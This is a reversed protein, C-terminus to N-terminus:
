QVLGCDMTRFLRKGPLVENSPLSDTKQLSFKSTMKGFAAIWVFSDKSGEKGSDLGQVAIVPEKRRGFHYSVTFTPFKGLCM